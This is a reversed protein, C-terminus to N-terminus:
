STHPSVFCVASVGCVLIRALAGDPAAHRYSDQDHGPGLETLLPVVSRKAPLNRCAAGSPTKYHQMTPSCEEPINTNTSITVAQALKSNISVASVRLVRLHERAVKRQTRRTETTQEVKRKPQPKAASRLIRGLCM